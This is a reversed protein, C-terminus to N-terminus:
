GVVELRPYEPQWMRRRIEAAPDALPRRAHGQEIACTAVAVAVACSAERLDAVSPLLCAGPRDDRVLGALAQAARFVMEDTVRAARM